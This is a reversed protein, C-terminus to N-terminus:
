RRLACALINDVQGKLSSKACAVAHGTGLRKAQLVYTYNAGLEKKVLEAQHGVVIISKQCIGSKEIADMVYWIISKGRLSFLIKPLHKSNMRKGKGAALVIIQTNM